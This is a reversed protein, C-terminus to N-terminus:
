GAAHKPNSPLSFIMRRCCIFVGTFALAAPVLGAVAWVLETARNFRGFHLATLWFLGGDVVRDAPDLRLLVDFLEPRALYLGSLGWMAVFPLFWAGLASHADWNLRPVRARWEITLSRRWYALGPWWIVAGTLALGLLTAAGVANVVHGADGALWSEHLRVLWEVARSPPLDNRFVIVSGSVSMVLVYAAVAAGLWFHVQFVFQRLWVKEPRELWQRWTM